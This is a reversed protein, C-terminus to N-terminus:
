IRFPLLNWGVPIEGASTSAVVGGPEPDATVLVAQMTHAVQTDISTDSTNGSYEPSCIKPPIRGPTWDPGRWSNRMRHTSM